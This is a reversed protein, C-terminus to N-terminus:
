AAEQQAPAPADAREALEPWIRMWDDPRLDWRMVAGATAQEIQVCREIPVGRTRWQTVSPPTVSCIRAVEAPGGARDIPHTM